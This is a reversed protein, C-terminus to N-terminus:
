PTVVAGVAPRQTPDPRRTAVAYGAADPDPSRPAVRDM